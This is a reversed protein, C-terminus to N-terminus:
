KRFVIYDASKRLMMLYEPEDNDECHVTKIYRFGAKEYVRIASKNEPEPGTIVREIGKQVFVVESLFQQLIQSGYGKHLFDKEGIFMDIGATDTSVEVCRAYNPYDHIKYWQIYGAPLKNIHIIYPHVPEDGTVRPYYKKEVDDYTFKRKAYWKSVFEVNMWKYLLDFDTKELPTFHIM